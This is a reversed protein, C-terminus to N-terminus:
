DKDRLINIYGVWKYDSVYWNTSLWTYKYNNYPLVDGSIVKSINVKSEAEMFDIQHAYILQTDNEEISYLPIDTVTFVAINTNTDEGLSRDGSLYFSASLNNESDISGYISIDYHTIYDGGITGVNVIANEGPSGDGEYTYSFTKGSWRLPGRVITALDDCNSYGIGGGIFSVTDTTSGPKWREFTNLVRGSWISVLIKDCKTIDDNEPPTPWTNGWYDVVHVTVDTDSALILDSSLSLENEAYAIIEDNIKKKGKYVDYGKILELPIQGIAKTSWTVKGDELSTIEPPLLIYYYALLSASGDNFFLQELETVDGNKGFNDITACKNGLFNVGQDELTSKGVYDADSDGIFPYTASHLEDIQAVRVVLLANEENKAKLRVYATSNNKMEKDLRAYTVLNDEGDYFYYWPVKEKAPFVFQVYKRLEPNIAQNFLCDKIYGNTGDCYSPTKMVDRCYAQFASNFTATADRAQIAKELNTRDNFYERKLADNIIKADYNESLWVLFHCAPYYSRQINSDVPHCLYEFLADDTSWTAGELSRANGAYVYVRKEEDTLNACKISYYNATAEIFWRNYQGTGIGWAGYKRGQLVHTLEHAAVAKMSAWNELKNSIKVCSGGLDSNGEGNLKTVLVNQPRKLKTFVKNGDSDEEALLKAYADNLATFLDEIYHPHEDAYPGGSGDGEWLGNTPIAYDTPAVYYEIRFVSGKQYAEYRNTKYEISTFGLKIKIVIRRARTAGSEEDSAMDYLDSLAVTLYAIEAVPDYRVMGSSNLWEGSEADYLLPTLEAEIEADSYGEGILSKDVPAAIIVEGDQDSLGSFDITLAYEASVDKLGGAVQATAAKSKAFSASGSVGTEDDPFIVAAGDDASVVESGDGFDLLCLRDVKVWYGYGPVMESLTSGGSGGYTKWEGDVLTAVQSYRGSISSLASSLSKTESLPYGILNWGEVLYVRKETEEADVDCSFTGAETMEVFYGRTADIRELDSLTADAPSYYRWVGNECTRISSYKGSISAFADQALSSSPQGPFSVLNTGASLSRIEEAFLLSPCIWVCVAFILWLRSRPTM